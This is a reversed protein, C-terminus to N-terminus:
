KSKKLLTLKVSLDSNFTSFRAVSGQVVRCWEM